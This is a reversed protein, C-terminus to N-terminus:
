NDMVLEAPGQHRTLKHEDIVLTWRKKSMIYTAQEFRNVKAIELPGLRSGNKILKTVLLFDRVLTFEQITLVYNELSQCIMTVAQKAFDSEEFAKLNHPTMASYSEDM